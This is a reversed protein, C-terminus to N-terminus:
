QEIPELSLFPLPVWAMTAQTQHCHIDVFRRRRVIEVIGLVGHRRKQFRNARKTNNTINQRNEKKTAYLQPREENSLFSSVLPMM